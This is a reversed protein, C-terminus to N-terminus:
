KPYQYLGLSHEVYSQQHSDSDNIREKDLKETHKASYEVFINQKSLNSPKCLM